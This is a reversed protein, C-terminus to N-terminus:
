AIRVHGTPGNQGTVAPRPLEQWKAGPKRFTLTQINLDAKLSRVLRFRATHYQVAVKGATTRCPSGARAGCTSMPCDHAEVLKHPDTKM